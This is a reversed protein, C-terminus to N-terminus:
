EFLFEVRRNDRRGDETANSAIPRTQGFGHWRLRHVSIGKQILYSAVEKARSESLSLNSQEQGRDDTHGMIFLNLQPQGLMYSALGDLEDFSSPLIDSKSTEFNLQQLIFPAPMITDTHPEPVPPASPLDHVTDRSLVVPLCSEGEELAILKIDEIFYYGSVKRNFIRFNNKNQREVGFESKGLDNGFSGITLFREGGRCHFTFSAASWVGPRDEVQVKATQNGMPRGRVANSYMEKHLFVGLTQVKMASFASRAYLFSICYTKSRRMKKPLEFTLYEKYQQSVIFGCYCDGSYPQLSGVFSMAPYV